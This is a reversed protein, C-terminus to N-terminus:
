FAGQLTLTISPGNTSERFERSSVTNSTLRSPAIFRRDLWSPSDGLNDLNLRVTVGKIATTEIFFDLDGHGFDRRQIESLRYAYTEGGPFTYDGGWALKLEPLDQRFDINSDFTFDNAFPREEGTIPDTVTSKRGQAFFKLMGGKVGLGDLPLAVEMRAGYREGDGINGAGTFFTTPGTQIVVFDQVDDVQNYFGKILFSGRQGITRKWQLSADWTQAPKLDPNGVTLQGQVLQVVSAFESFNLQAVIREFNLTFQDTKNPTWTAQIRPKPYTFDREQEADGTQTIRSAEFTFGMDLTLEPSARWTDAIFVEGRLEEVRTSAVPLFQPTFPGAGVANSVARDTDLYNFAGELGIEVTHKDNPKTTWVGRLVHEGRKNDTNIRTAVARPGTGPFQEFFEQPRWSVLSNVTVLKVTNEPSFRHEWDGGLDLYIIDKETYDDAVFATPTGSTDRSISGSQSNFGRPMIRGTVNLTDRATPTWNFSGNILLENLYQQGFEDRTGTLAGVGNYFEIATEGRNQFNSAQVQLRGGFDQAKWARTGGVRTSIHEGQHQLMGVYTTSAQVQAAPKLVVNALEVYGRVDLDGAASAGILEIRAVDRASIRTLEDGISTAKTSPRQGDILVNGATAGFGRLSDGNDIAFGPLQRVMDFATVPNYRSFFAPEFSRVGKQEAPQGAAQGAQQPTQQALAAQSLAIVSAAALVSGTKWPKVIMGGLLIVFTNWLTRGYDM